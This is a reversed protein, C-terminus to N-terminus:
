MQDGFFIVNMMLKNTGYWFARFNTNDTFYSVRGRHKRGTKFASSGSLTKLNEKSIYGSLLPDIQYLIPNNSANADPELFITTNRFLPLESKKYGFNVPHSRDTKAQFIAGGIVQAGRYREQQEFSAQQGTKESKMLTLDLLENNDIWYAASRFGILHGGQEVWNKLAETAGSDPGRGWTAPMIITTYRSLNKRGLESVDLKTLTIDYRTDLLHWIEGADYPNIGPGVLLAIKKPELTRFDSSGLNMGQTAGTSLGHIRHEKNLAEMLNHIEDPSKEQNHAPIMLSGYDFNQKGLAFPQMAVKVRINNELM